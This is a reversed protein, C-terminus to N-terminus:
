MYQPKLIHALRQWGDRQPLKQPDNVKNIRLYLTFKSRSVGLARCSGSMTQRRRDPTAVNGGDADVSIKRGSTFRLSSNPRRSSRKKAERALFWFVRFSSFFLRAICGIRVGKLRSAIHREIKFIKQLRIKGSKNKKKEGCYLVQYINLVKYKDFKTGFQIEVIGFLLIINESRVCRIGM